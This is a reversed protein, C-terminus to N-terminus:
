VLDGADGDPHLGQVGDRSPAGLFADPFTVHWYIKGTDREGGSVIEVSIPVSDDDRILIQQSLVESVQM